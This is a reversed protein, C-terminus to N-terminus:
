QRTHSQRTHAIRLRLQPERGGRQLDRRDRPVGRQSAAGLRRRVLHRAESRAGQVGGCRSRAWRIALRPLPRKSHCVQLGSGGHSYPTGQRRWRWCTRHLRREVKKGGIPIHRRPTGLALVLRGRWVSSGPMPERSDHHPTRHLVFTNTTTLYGPYYATHTYEKAGRQVVHEIRARTPATCRRRRRWAGGAARM